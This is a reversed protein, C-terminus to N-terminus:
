IRLQAFSTLCMWGGSTRPKRILFTQWVPASFVRQLVPKHPRVIGLLHSNGIHLVLASVLIGAAIEAGTMGEDNIHCCAFEQWRKLNERDVIEKAREIMTQM